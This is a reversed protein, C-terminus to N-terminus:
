LVTHSSKVQGPAGGPGAGGPKAPGPERLSRIRISGTNTSLSINDKGQGITGVASSGMAFGHPKTVQLPLDTQIGGLDAKAHMKASLDAPATYDIGGVNVTLAVRGSVDTARISGVEALAEISGRLGALHIGGVAQYLKLRAERPATVELRVNCSEGHRLGEPKSVIIRERGDAQLGTDTIVLREAIEQAREKTEAKGTVTGRIVYEPADGTRVTISGVQNVVELFRDGPLPGFGVYHVAEELNDVHEPVVPPVPPEMAPIEIHPVEVHPIHVEPLVTDPAGGGGPHPMPVPHPTAHVTADSPPAPAPPMAPMVPMAPMAPMESAESDGASGTQRRAMEQGWLEMQEGWKAMDEQWKQMQESQQWQEAWVKMQKAWDQQQAKHQTEARAKAAEQQARAAENVARQAEEKARQIQKRVEKVREQVVERDPYRRDSSPPSVEPAVPPVSVAPPNAPARERRPRVARARERRESPQERDVMQSRKASLARLLNQLNQQEAMLRELQGQLAAIVESLEVETQLDIQEIQLNDGEPNVPVVEDNSVHTVENPAAEQARAMPLVCALMLAAITAVTLRKMTRYRWTPKTLWHLRVALRNSDEFLGLLGLGPEVSTALLRRATELLTQRYAATRERLLEAVTADCSLERLHHVQRRVLWLLPNYWYAIQLLMYLGHMALDGRKVHALEHLLMHETDRRSLKSLYGRPMLLVPRFVGFVAPSALRRTVVVGPVRRLGLCKACGALQSYFSQPLSAAAAQYAHRGALSHLRFYLWIGLLLTGALWIMMAYSRWELQPGPEPDPAVHNVIQSQLGADLASDTITVSRPQTARAFETARPDAFAWVEPSGAGDFSNPPAVRGFDAIWLGCDSIAGLSDGAVPREPVMWRVAQGVLPQLGPIIASPLSLTPPLLLKVLILSWLAYRLQPWAWRRIILDICGILLILLGVQWFMAASWDWWLRAIANLQEVM